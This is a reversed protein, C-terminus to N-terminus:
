RWTLLDLLRLVVLRHRTIDWVHSSSTYFVTGGRHEIDCLMFCTESLYMTKIKFKKIHHIIGIVFFGEYVKCLFCLKWHMCGFKVWVTGRDFHLYTCGTWFATRVPVVCDM